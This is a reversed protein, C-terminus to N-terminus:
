RAIQTLLVVHAQLLALGVLLWHIIKSQNTSNVIFDFVLFALASRNAELPHLAMGAVLTVLDAVGESM